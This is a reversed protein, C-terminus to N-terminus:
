LRRSLNRSFIGARGSRRFVKFIRLEKDRSVISNDFTRRKWLKHSILTSCAKTGNSVADESSRVDLWIQKSESNKTRRHQWLTLCRTNEVNKYFRIPLFEQHNLVFHLRQSSYDQVVLLNTSVIFNAMSRVNSQQRNCTWGSHISTRVKEWPLRLYTCTLYCAWLAAYEFGPVEMLWSLSATNLTNIRSEPSTAESGGTLTSKPRSSNRRNVPM